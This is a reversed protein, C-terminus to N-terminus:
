SSMGTARSPFTSMGDPGPQPTRMRSSQSRRAFRSTLSRSYRRTGGGRKEGDAGSVGGQVERAGAEFVSLNEPGKRSISKHYLLRM